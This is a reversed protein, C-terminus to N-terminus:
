PAFAYFLVRTEQLPFVTDGGIGECVGISGYMHIYIRICIYICTYLYVHTYMYMCVYIYIHIMLYRCM